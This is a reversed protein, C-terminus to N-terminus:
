VRAGFEVEPYGVTSDGALLFVGSEYWVPCSKVPEIVPCDTETFLSWIMQRGTKFLSPFLDIQLSGEIKDIGGIGDASIRAARHDISASFKDADIEVAIYLLQGVSIEVDILILPGASDSDM